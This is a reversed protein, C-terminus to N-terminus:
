VKREKQSERNELWSQLDQPSNINIFAQTEKFFVPNAKLKSWLTGMKREKRDLALRIETLRAIPVISCLPQWFFDTKPSPSAAVCIQQSNERAARLLIQIEKATIGPLDCPLFFVADCRNQYFTLAAEVGSLPGLDPRIDPVIECNLFEYPASNNASVIIDKIGAKKIQAFLREIITEGPRCEITGKARGGYRSSKGGALIASFIEM